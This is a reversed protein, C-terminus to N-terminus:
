QRARSSRSCSWRCLINIPMSRTGGGQASKAGGEGEKAKKRSNESSGKATKPRQESRNSRHSRKYKHRRRYIWTKALGAVGGGGEEKEREGKREGVQMKMDFRLNIIKPRRGFCHLALFFALFSFPLCLPLSLPPHFSYVRFQPAACTRSHCQLRDFEM